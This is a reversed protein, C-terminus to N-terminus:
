AARLRAQGAAAALRSFDDHYLDAVVGRLDPTWQTRSEASRSANYRGLSELAPRVAGLRGISRFLSELGEALREMAILRDFRVRDLELVHAQPAFHPDWDVGHRALGHVFREFPIIAQITRIRAAQWAEASIGPRVPTAYALFYILPHFRRAYRNLKNHYNSEVRSFPDRVVSFWTYAELRRTVAAIDNRAVRVEYVGATGCGVQAVTKRPCDRSGRRAPMGGADMLLNIMTTSACKPLPAYVLRWPECVVLHM